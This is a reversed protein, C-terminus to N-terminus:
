EGHYSGVKLFVNDQYGVFPSIARGVVSPRFIITMGKPTKGSIQLIIGIDHERPVDTIYIPGGSVCRAAAHFGAYEHATQFMDWDPLVSMLQLLICNHANAWLHWPHSGPVDPFFDDSSRVPYAPRPSSLRLYFLWQPFLSMCSITRMDFHCLAARNWTDLYTFLLKRRASASAWTDVMFQVDTKVADIGANALFNYFDDYLRAVDDQDVVTMTDGLSLDDEVRPLEITKYAKALRGRTSIGGWYGLLAHWVAIHRIQPHKERVKTVTAKLGNPFSKPEADFDLWGHHFQSPGRYDISQWNDDMIFNTIQINNEALADLANLIKEETM